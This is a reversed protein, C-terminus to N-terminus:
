PTSSPACCCSSPPRPHRDRRAAAGRDRPDPRCALGTPSDPHLVTQAWHLTATEVTRVITSRAAAAPPLPAGTLADPVSLSFSGAGHVAGPQVDACGSSRMDLHDSRPLDAGSRSTQGLCSAAGRTRPSRRRRTLLTAGHQQMSCRTPLSVRPRRQRAGGLRSAAGGPRRGRRDSADSVTVRWDQDLLGPAASSRARLCRTPESSPEVEPPARTRVEPHDDQEISHSVKEATRDTRGSSSGLHTEMRLSARHCPGHERRLSQQSPHVAGAETSETHDACKDIAMEFDGSTAM